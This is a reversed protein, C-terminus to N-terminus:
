FHIRSARAKQISVLAAQREHKYDFFADIAAIFRSGLFYSDNTTGDSDILWDGAVYDPVSHLLLVLSAAFGRALLNNFDVVDSANEYGATGGSNVMAIRQMIQPPTLHVYTSTKGYLRGLEEGFDDTLDPQLMPLTLDRKASISSSFLEKDFQKLKEPITSRYDKQQVFCIKISSEIVFRLERKPVSLAGNRALFAISIASEIFDQALYSLLHNAGFSPDRSTDGVIIGVATLYAHVIAAMKALAADRDSTSLLANPDPM